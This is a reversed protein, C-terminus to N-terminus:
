RKGLLRSAFFGSFRSKREFGSVSGPVVIWQKPVLHESPQHVFSWPSPVIVHASRSLRAGWWSFTSNSTVHAKCASMLALDSLVDGTTVVQCPIRVSSFLWRAFNPEDGFIWFSANPFKAKIGIVADLYYNPDCVGHHLYDHRRVHVAVPFESECISRTVARNPMRARARESLYSLQGETPIRNDQWYGELTVDGDGEPLAISLPLTAIFDCVIPNDTITRGGVDVSPVVGDLCELPLLKEILVERRYPDDVYYTTDILLKTGLAKAVRDGACWQFIQNGVGGSLKLRVLPKAPLSSENLAEM